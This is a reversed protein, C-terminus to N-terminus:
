TQVLANHFPRIDRWLTSDATQTASWFQVMCASILAFRKTGPLIQGEPAISLTSVTNLNRMYGYAVNIHPLFVQVERM